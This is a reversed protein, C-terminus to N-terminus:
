AGCWRRHAEREARQFHADVAERGCTDPLRLHAQEASQAAKLVGVLPAALGKSGDANVYGPAGQIATGLLAVAMAEATAAVNVIDALSESMSAAEAIGRIAGMKTLVLGLGTAGAVKM